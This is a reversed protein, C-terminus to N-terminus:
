KSTDMQLTSSSGSSSSSNETESSAVAAVKEEAKKEAKPSTTMMEAEPKVAFQGVKTAAITAKYLEEGKMQHEKFFAQHLPIKILRKVTKRTAPEIENETDAVEKKTAKTKKTEKIEEEEEEESKETQEAQTFAFADNDFLYSVGDHKGSAYFQIRDV